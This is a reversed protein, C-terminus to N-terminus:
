TESWIVSACFAEFKDEMSLANAVEKHWRGSSKDQIDGM